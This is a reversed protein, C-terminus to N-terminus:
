RVAIAFGRMRVKEVPSFSGSERGIVSVRSTAAEEEERERQSLRV